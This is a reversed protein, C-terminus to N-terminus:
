DANKNLSELINLTLELLIGSISFNTVHKVQMQEFKCTIIKITIM